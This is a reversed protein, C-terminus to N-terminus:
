FLQPDLGNLLVTDLFNQHAHSSKRELWINISYAITIHADVGSLTSIRVGGAPLLGPSGTWTSPNVLFGSGRRLGLFFIKSVQAGSRVTFLLM